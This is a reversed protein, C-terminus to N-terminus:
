KLFGYLNLVNELMKVRNKPLPREERLWENFHQRRYEISDAIKSKNFCPRDNIYDRMAQILLENDIIDM